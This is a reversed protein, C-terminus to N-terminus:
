QQIFRGDIYDLRYVSGKETDFAVHTNKYRLICREGAISKIEINQLCGKQWIIKVEFNGRALLGEVYGDSWEDPLAPLLHIFGMHSQLLMEVVGATGGLNGDIQFPPHTDWLNPLTGSKLLNQFLTYSHNGDHLRAWQNLKWGMSWGTAFDGRHELVIRSADALEPTTIPSITKGPHLGYLHNVHRHNDKPDDIDSYWEQLQGYRGVKYPYIHKLVRVWEEQEEKDLDLKQSAQIADILIERAVGHVFTAGEDIPGHEPSTSPTATYIGDPRKWMYDVVFQASEKIVDYYSELFEKDRTFDYYDWIHTALWPGAMPNFNWSMDRSSLPATFGYINASISATWGRAGFYSNATVRGPKILTRIFDFLPRACENLNTTSVPWYNMQLNINNHYDVHWPGDINNSWIGQLNAPMSGERSSAILLYRGFQFYLSELYFDKNGNKYRALRKDTPIDICKYYPNLLLSVRNFISQYDSIHTSLLQQYSKNQIRNLQRKNKVVSSEGVYTKSDNFDPDFNMKYDTSAVIKFTVEDAGIIYIKNDDIRCTGHQVKSVIDLAFQQMNDKLYGIFQLHHESVKKFKGVVNSPMLYSFVLNQMGAKNASYNIVFVNDPYSCFYQRKYNTDRQSFNVNVLASDLVLERSYNTYDAELNTNIRFEGMTSFAGFRHPKESETCDYDVFGNFNDRTLKEALETEGNLFAERILPLYNSSKKNVDWYYSPYKSVNPGGSWLTKENFTVREEAINGYINAGLYGNGIPLTYEEWVTDKISYKSKVWAPRTDCELIPCDFWIKYKPVSSFAIFNNNVLLLILLLKLTKM